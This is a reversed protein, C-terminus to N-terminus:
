DYQHVWDNNFNLEMRHIINYFYSKSIGIKKSIIEFNENTSLDNNILNKIYTEISSEKKKLKSLYNTGCFWSNNKSLIRCLSNYYFNSLNYGLSENVQERIFSTTIFEYNNLLKNLFDKVENKDCLIIASNINLFTGPSTKFISGNNVLDSIHVDLPLDEDTKQLKEYIDKYHIEDDSSEIIELIKDKLSIRKVNKDFSITNTGSRGNHFIGRESGYNKIIARADYFNLNKFNEYKLLEKFAIELSVEKKNKENLYNIFFEIIADKDKIAPCFKFLKITGRESLYIEKNRYPSLSYDGGPRNMNWKNKTFSNNAIKAIEKWHLGDPYNLLINIVEQSRNIKIAYVKNDHIKILKKNQMFELASSAVFKNYGYSDQITELFSEKDIGSQVVQFISALKQEDFSWLVREPTKFFKEDVGCFNEIFYTLKDGSIEEIGRATNTFKKDLKPFLKHFSIFEYKKFYNILSKKDIKGLKYLSQNLSKELQRVRERTIQFLKGLEELTKCKENYGYRGKFFTVMRDDLLSIIQEIDEIILKEVETAKSENPITIKNENLHIERVYKFDKFLSKKFSHKNSFSGNDEPYIKNEFDLKQRIDYWNSNNIKKDLYNKKKLLDNIEDLSKRGFNRFKLFDKKDLTILDGLYVVNNANLSNITRSSLPWEKLINIKLEEDSIMNTDNLM